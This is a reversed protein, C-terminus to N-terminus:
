SIRPRLVLVTFSHMPIALGDYKWLPHRLRLRGLELFVILFVSAWVPILSKEEQNIVIFRLFSLIM